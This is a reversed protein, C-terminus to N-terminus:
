WYPPRIGALSSLAGEGSSGDERKRHGALDLNIQRHIHVLWDVYSQAENNRDEVLLRAFEYEAGDIGQRALQITVAKSGRVTALYQLLNRVQANLHTELVPISSTSPDLSQLSTKGPGFLDELLNPSVQAHLWLLCIQGNDVLYAGGEEIKSFSARLTPPVQLQGQENPFGDEPNMNHIPIIRPYLYLSLETCGMSRLMRLDHVRRDSTEVGGKFARSKILGLMYMSFEKLNEPLVLQGPPHSGSFNKRYGSFIDITKETISARIDKLPKDAAKSAAEKAIIAVVADQDIFKMTELGGDNVAAVINICRVRRQGSATTYLLAAQFHADLKTDLKGDYSFLVGIAKDADITGIELDAGFTHQLFNGHYSSVQLGNSCRVKMLAQYGTERNVTHAIEKSLKLIDRPAHFNPYFFTEGGSVAATYGITAVDMYAGGPSAIFFDIGVGSEALKTATKRWEPNESTFLKKEGDAGLGKGNDRMFLRGPGWTPLSALACVIKGGTFQLASLAANITPLLAPEPNKVHSFITPLQTLLSTIVAKSEYPDVFLGDNLPVFPEELDTMVMMQAHNLQPSLNYFHVEKDFTIIGVKSGEPLTRSTTEGDNEEPTEDKGGYLASMIGECVGELFGRKVSEQSVDILFLWRLGVPEKAWYEKPVVFEVTGMLLEPRQMRDVRAGSPDVPAYYEPPVENPFTCMNCVFKNGGARFVMFPNIYTRCRRCRPPGSEGFDIVPIPQEGPDLRALPQIVLGLPLGTSNLFDSTSPINNLTLRAYKPSSNGQDHAVFPIAAPPPIHREMTPYVHNFYYQAPIDRSRPVSPIQEPDIKGQTHVSGTGAGQFGPQPSAGTAPNVAQPAAAPSVPRSVPQNLGTNLFQSSGPAGSQQPFNNFAQPAPGGAASGGIDHYAHRHKKKHGRAGADTTIGLGGMQATLGGMADGEAAGTGASYGAEPHGAFSSQQPAGYPSPANLPAGGYPAGPHQYGPPPPASQAYPQTASQQRSLDEDPAGPQGLAHYTSHDAM